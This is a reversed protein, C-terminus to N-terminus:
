SSAARQAVPGKPSKSQQTSLVKRLQRHVADAAKHVEDTALMCTAVYMHQRYVLFFSASAPLTEGVGAAGLFVLFRAAASATGSTSEAATSM